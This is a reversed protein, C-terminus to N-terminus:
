TRNRGTQADFLEPHSGRAFKHASEDFFGSSRCHDCGRGRGGCAACVAYPRGRKLQSHATQTDSRVRAALVYKGAPSQEVRNVFAVIEKQYQCYKDFQERELFVEVLHPPVVNGVEDRVASRDRQEAVAKCYAKVHADWREFADRLSSDAKGVERGAARQSKGDLFHLVAAQEVWPPCPDEEATEEDVEEEAEEEVEEKAKEAAASQEEVWELYEKKKRSMTRDFDKGSKDPDFERAHGGHGRPNKERWYNVKSKSCGCQRAMERSGLNEMEPYTHAKALAFDIDKETRPAGHESNDSLSFVIADKQTGPRVECEFETLGAQEGALLRHFGAALWYNAGDFYVILPKPRLGEQYMERYRAVYENNIGARSQTGGDTRIQGRLLTKTRTHSDDRNVRAARGSRYDASDGDTGPEANDRQYALVDQATGTGNNKTM